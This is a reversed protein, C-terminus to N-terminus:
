AKNFIASSTIARLVITIGGISSGVWPLHTTIFTIMQENAFISSLALVVGFAVTKFGKM